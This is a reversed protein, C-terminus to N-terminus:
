MISMAQARQEHTIFPSTHVASDLVAMLIQGEASVRSGIVFLAFWVVIGYILGTIQILGGPLGRYAYSSEINAGGVLLLIAILAGLVAGIIKLALGLGRMFRATRYGDSYRRMVMMGPSSMMPPGVPGGPMGLSYNVDGTSM